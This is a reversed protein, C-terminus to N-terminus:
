RARRLVTIATEGYRRVAQIVLSNGLPLDLEEGESPRAAHELVLLGEPALLDVNHEMAALVRSCLDSAYPPDAFVVDFPGGVAVLERLVDGQRVEAREVLALERLNREIASVCVRSREVFVAHRAGRSLAEIGLTGAGAFLDLVRAEDILPTLMSFLSEKVRDSTPRVDADPPVLLRRGRCVGAIVRPALRGEHRKQRM